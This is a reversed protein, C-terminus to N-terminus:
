TARSGLRDAVQYATEAADERVDQPARLLLEEAALILAEAIVPKQYRPQERDGIPETLFRVMGAVVQRARDNITEDM